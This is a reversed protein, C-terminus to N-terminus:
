DHSQTLYAYRPDSPGVPDATTRTSAARRVRLQRKADVTQSLRRSDPDRNLERRRSTAMHQVTRTM